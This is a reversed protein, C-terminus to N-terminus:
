GPPVVRAEVSGFGITTGDAGPATATIRLVDGDDLYARTTGDPLRLPRTGSRFLM